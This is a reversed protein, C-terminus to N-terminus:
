PACSPVSAAYWASATPIFRWATSRTDVKSLGSPETATTCTRSPAVPFTTSSAVQFAGLVLASPCVRVLCSLDRKPFDSAEVRAGGGPVKGGGEATPPTAATAAAGTAAALEGVAAGAAGESGTAACGAGSVGGRGVEAAGSASGPTTPLLDVSLMTWRSDSRGVSSMAM